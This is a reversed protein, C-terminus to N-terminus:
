AVDEQVLEKMQLGHVLAAGGRIANAVHVAETMQALDGGLGKAAETQRHISYPCQIAHACALGILAKEIGELAGDAFVAQNWAEHARSLEPSAAEHAGDNSLQAVSFYYAPTDVASGGM